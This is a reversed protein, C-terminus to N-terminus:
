EAGGTRHGREAFPEGTLAHVATLNAHSALRRLIVDCYHPDLELGYGRRGTREAALLTTGSGAFADLVISGRESADQIADAVLAVPKVTPHDALDAARDKRFTNAGAYEWVNTRYRGYRGLAVNNIHPGTGAKFVFVLEHRSRYLSGMGANTKAWVCLNKLETYAAQGAAHIEGLHRWDMCVYHLAGDESASALHGFVTRLFATFEAASMEGSAMPFERHQIKGLGSVHGAIPVNYPPDTFVLQARQDGLLHAYSAAQTADACLLRHPGIQWLDGPMTLAPGPKPALPEDDDTPAVQLEGLLVDIEATEFGTLTLDLDVTQLDQLELALTQRDWGALEALRNDALAYARQEAATLHDIRLTPVERYGLQRAAALRGHGALIQGDANILIPNVFGFRQISAAIQHVQRETHTRANRDAPRLNAVQRYCVELHQLLGSPATPTAPTTPIRSQRARRPRGVPTPTSNM